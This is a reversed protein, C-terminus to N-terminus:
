LPVLLRNHVSGSCHQDLILGSACSLTFKLILPFVCVQRVRCLLCICPTNHMSDAPQSSPLLFTFMAYMLLKNQSKQSRHQQTVGNSLSMVAKDFLNSVCFFVLRDQSRLPEANNRKSLTSNINAAYQPTCFMFNMQPKERCSLLEPKNNRHRLVRLLHFSFFTDGFPSHQRIESLRFTFSLLFCYCM